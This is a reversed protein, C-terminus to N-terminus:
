NKEPNGAELAKPILLFDRSNFDSSNSTLAHFTCYWTKDDGRIGNFVYLRLDNQYIGKEPLIIAMFRTDGESEIIKFPTGHWEKLLIMKSEKEVYVIAEYFKMNYLGKERDEVLYYTGVDPGAAYTLSSLVTLLLTLKKM